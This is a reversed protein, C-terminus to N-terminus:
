FFFGEGKVVSAASLESRQYQYAGCESTKRFPSLSIQLHSPPELPSLARPIPPFPFMPLNRQHFSKLSLTVTIRYVPLFSAEGNM